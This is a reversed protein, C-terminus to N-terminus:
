PIIVDWHNKKMGGPKLIYGNHVHTHMHFKLITKLLNHIYKRQSEQRGQNAFGSSSVANIGDHM